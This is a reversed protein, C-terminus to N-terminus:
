AAQKEPLPPTDTVPKLQYFWIAATAIICYPITMIINGKLTDEPWFVCYFTVLTEIFVFLTIYFKKDRMTTLKRNILITFIWLLILGPVSCILGIYIAMLYYEGYSLSVQLTPLNFAIAILIRLAPTLLITTLWIKLANPNSAENM